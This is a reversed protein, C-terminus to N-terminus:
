RNHFLECEVKMLVMITLITEPIKKNVTGSNIPLIIGITTPIATIILLEKLTCCARTKFFKFLLYKKGDNIIAIIQRTHPTTINNLGNLLAIQM